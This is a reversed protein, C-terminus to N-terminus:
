TLLISQYQPQIAFRVHYTISSIDIRKGDGGQTTGRLTSVEDLGMIILYTLYANIDGFHSLMFRRLVGLTPNPDQGPETRRTYLQLEITAMRDQPTRPNGVMAFIGEGQTDQTGSTCKIQLRPVTPGENSHFAYVQLQSYPALVNTFYRTLADDWQYEFELLQEPTPASM